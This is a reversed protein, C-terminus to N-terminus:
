AKTITPAPELPEKADILSKDPGPLAPSLKATTRAKEPSARARNRREIAARRHAAPRISDPLANTGRGEPRGIRFAKGFEWRSGKRLASARFDTDTETAHRDTM